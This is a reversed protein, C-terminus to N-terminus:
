LFDEMAERLLRYKVALSLHEYDDYDRFNLGTVQRVKEMRNRITNEHVGLSEALDGMRGKHRILDVLTRTLNLGNEADYAMLREFIDQGFGTESRARVLPLLAQYSGLDEYAMLDQHCIRGCVASGLAEEIAEKMQSQFYHVRGLGLYAQDQPDLSKKAKLALDRAQAPGLGKASYIYLYGGKYSLLSASPLDLSSKNYAEFIELAQDQDQAKKPWIFLAFFHPKLSPNVQLAYDRVRDQSLSGHLITDLERVGYDMRGARTVLDEVQYIIDEFYPEAEEALFLPLGMSDAYRLIYDHITLDYVNRIVLGSAEQGM